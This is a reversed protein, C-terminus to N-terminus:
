RRRGVFSAGDSREDRLCHGDERWWHHGPRWQGDAAIPSAQMDYDKFDNTVGQYYWRLKGTAADLNVVSDTYLLKGTDFAGISVDPVSQRHWLFRIRRQGGTADGVSWGRRTRAVSRRRGEKASDQIELARCRNECEAGDLTRWGTSARVPEGLLRSRGRRCTSYRLHGPGEEPYPQQGLNKQGNRRKFAFVSKPTAAFIHGNWVAVGNPGPGSKEKKNVIHSWVLKGTALSLAYVNSHLDQMYVTGNVVVPAAALTGYGGVNKTAKGTLKFSWVKQLTAVNGATISSGAADRTNALNGNPYPWSTGNSASAPVVNTSLAVAGLAM